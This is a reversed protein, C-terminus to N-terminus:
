LMHGRAGVFAWKDQETEDHKLAEGFYYQYTMAVLLLLIVQM